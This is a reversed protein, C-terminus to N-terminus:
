LGVREIYLVSVKGFCKKDENMYVDYCTKSCVGM